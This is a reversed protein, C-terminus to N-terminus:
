SPDANQDPRVAEVQRVGARSQRNGFGDHRCWTRGDHLDPGAQGQGPPLSRNAARGNRAVAIKIPPLCGLLSQHSCGELGHAPVNYRWKGTSVELGLDIRIIDAADTMM